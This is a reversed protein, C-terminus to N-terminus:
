DTWPRVQLGESLYSAGAGVITEGAVLGETVTVNEGIGDAISINRRSVMMSESDVVWVFQSTGDSMISALPVAAYNTANSTIQSTDLFVSANMGPLIVLNEPPTFKYSVQYTQSVADAELTAESFTAPIRVGPAADLIVSVLAANQADPTTAIISAPLSFTAEMEDSGMISAIIQGPQVNELRNGLIATVVGTYPALLTTDSLAKEATDLAALAVNYQSERQELVSQAIADEAALRQARLFETEANDFQAKASNLQNVYQRQDLRAILDGQQIQQAETVGIEEVLGGVQFALESSQAAEIIAPFTRSELDSAEGITILKAPRVAPESAQQDVEPGCSALALMLLFAASQPKLKYDSLRM